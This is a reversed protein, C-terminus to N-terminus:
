MGPSFDIKASSCTADCAPDGPQTHGVTYSTPQSADFLPKAQADVVKIAYVDGNALPGSQIGPGASLYLYTTATGTATGGMWFRPPGAGFSWTLGGGDDTSTLLSSACDANRCVTVTAGAIAGPAAVVVARLTV